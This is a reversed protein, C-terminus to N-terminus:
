DYSTWCVKDGAKAGQKTLTIDLNNGNVVTPLSVEVSRAISLISRDRISKAYGYTPTAAPTVSVVGDNINQVSLTVCGHEAAMVIEKRSRQSLFSASLQSTSTHEPRLTQPAM